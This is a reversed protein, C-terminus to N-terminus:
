KSLAPEPPTITSPPPGKKEYLPAVYNDGGCQKWYRFTRLLFYVAIIQFIGNWILYYRYDQVVDLLIALFVGFLTAASKVLGNASAFQGYRKKPLIRVHLPNAAAHVIETVPFWLAGVLVFSPWDTKFYFSLFPGPLALIVGFIILRMPHFRDALMGFPYHAITQALALYASFAAFQEITIGIQKAFFFQFSGIPGIYWAAWFLYYNLYIPHSRFCENVYTKVKDLFGIHEERDEEAPYQGEKVKWCMLGFGFFYLIAIGIYIEKAHTEAHPFIYLQFFFNALSGVARFLGMFRGLFAQPVVDAFLYWYVSNVFENFFAFGLVLFGVLTITAVHPSIGWSKLFPSERMFVAIDETYGVGALFLCLFPATVVIFPIRRGWRSRYRDSKYSVVPGVFLGLILPLNQSIITMTTNSAGISIMQLPLIKIVREMIQFCFDGWLLWGFLTLLGLKTYRLSGVSLRENESVPANKDPSANGM